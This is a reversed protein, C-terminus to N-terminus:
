VSVYYEIESELELVKQQHQQYHTKQVRGGLYTPLEIWKRYGMEDLAMGNWGHCRM